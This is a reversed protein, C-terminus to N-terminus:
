GLFLDFFFICYSILYMSLINITKLAVLLPTEIIEETLTIPPGTPFAPALKVRFKERVVPMISFNSLIVLFLFFFCSLVRINALILSFLMLNKTDRASISMFFTM